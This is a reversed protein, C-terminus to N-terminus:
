DPAIGIERIVEGWAKYQAQVYAAIEPLSGAGYTYFGIERLRAVVTPDDLVLALERNMRRLIESPTGAPAVVAMWGSFDFGPFTDAV